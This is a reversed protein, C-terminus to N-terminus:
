ADTLARRRVVRTSAARDHIARRQDDVLLTIGNALGWFNGILPIFGPLTKVCWRATSTGWTPFRGRQDIVMCGAAMKGLTAGKTKTMVIDYAAMLAIAPLMMLLFLGGTLDDNNSAPALAMAAIVVAIGVPIGVILGDLIAGGLRQWASATEFSGGTPDVDGHQLRQLFLERHEPAVWKDGFQIMSSTPLLRGSVACRASEGDAADSTWHPFVARLPQWEAMGQTWVLSDETIVGNRLLSELNTESVPGERSDGVAYHYHNM